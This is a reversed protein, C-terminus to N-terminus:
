ICSNALSGTYVKTVGKGFKFAKVTLNETSISTNKRLRTQLRQQKRRPHTLISSPLACVKRNRKIIFSEINTYFYLMSLNLKLLPLITVICYRWSFLPVLAPRGLPTTSGPRSWQWALELVSGRRSNIDRSNNLRLLKHFTMLEAVIYHIINLRLLKGKVSTM